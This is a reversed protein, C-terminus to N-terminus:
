KIGKKAKCTTQRIYIEKGSKYKRTHGRRSWGELYRNYTKQPIDLYEYSIKINNLNITTKCTNYKNGNTDNNEIINSITVRDKIIKIREAMIDDNKVIKNFLLINKLISKCREQLTEILKLKVQTKYLNLNLNIKNIKKILENLTESVFDKNINVNIDIESEDYENIIIKGIEKNLTNHYITIENNDVEAIHVIRNDISQFSYIVNEGIYNLVEIDLLSNGFIRGMENIKEEELIINIKKM